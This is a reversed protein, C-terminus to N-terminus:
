QRDLHSDANGLEVEGEQRGLLLAVYVDADAQFVRARPPRCESSRRPEDVQLLRGFGQESVAGLAIAVLDIPGTSAILDLRREKGGGVIAVQKVEDRIVVTEGGGLVHGGDPLILERRHRIRALKDNGGRPVGGSTQQRSM